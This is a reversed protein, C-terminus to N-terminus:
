PHTKLIARTLAPTSFVALQRGNLPLELIPIKPVCGATKTLTAFLLSLHQCYVPISTRGAPLPVSQPGGGMNKYFISAFPNLPHPDAFFNLSLSNPSLSYPIPALGLFSIPAPSPHSVIYVPSFLM